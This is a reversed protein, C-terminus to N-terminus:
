CTQFVQVNDMGGNTWMANNGGEVALAQEGVKFGKGNGLLSGTKILRGGRYM